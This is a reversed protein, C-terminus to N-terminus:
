PSLYKEGEEGLSVKGNTVKIFDGRQLVKFALNAKIRRNISPTIKELYKIFDRESVTAVAKFNCKDLIAHAIKEEGSTIGAKYEKKKM